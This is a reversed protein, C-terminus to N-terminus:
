MRCRRTDGCLHAACGMSVTGWSAPAVSVLRGVPVSSAGGSGSGAPLRSLGFDSVLATFRRSNPAATLQVNSCSLDGHILGAEHLVCMGAAPLWVPPRRAPSLM